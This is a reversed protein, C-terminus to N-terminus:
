GDGARDRRRRSWSNGAEALNQVASATKGQDTSPAGGGDQIWDPIPSGQREVLKLFEEPSHDGEVRILQADRSCDTGNKFDLQVFGGKVSPPAKVKVLDAPSRWRPSPRSRAEAEAAAAAACSRSRRGSACTPSPSARRVPPAACPRL